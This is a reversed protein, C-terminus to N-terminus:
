SCSFNMPLGSFRALFIQRIM